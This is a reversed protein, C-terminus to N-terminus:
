NLVELLHIEFMLTENPGITGRGSGEEGYALVPPINVLWRDGPKMLQLVETWGQIVGDVPFQAPEGRAWSSDFREGTEALRGDYHVSVISNRTPSVSDPNGSKIIVYSVGTGTRITEPGTPKWPLNAAWAVATPGSPVEEPLPSTDVAEFEPAAETQAQQSQRERMAGIVERLSIRFVLDTNPPILTGRAENGYGLSSPVYVVLEDGVRMTQLIAGWGVIVENLAFTAAEGRAYSSDVIVGDSARRGEYHAVVESQLSPSPADVAGEKVLYYQLQGIGLDLISINECDAPWSSQGGTDAGVSVTRCSDGQFTNSISDGITEFQACSTIALGAAAAALTSLIRTM